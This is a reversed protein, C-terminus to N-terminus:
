KKYVQNRDDIVKGTLIQDLLMLANCAVNALHHVGSEDIDNKDSFTLYQNLHRQLADTLRTAEMPQSYNFKGYKNKGHSFGKCVELLALQPIASFSPKGQDHKTAGLPKIPNEDLERMRRVADYIDEEEVEGFSEREEVKPTNLVEIMEKLREKDKDTTEVKVSTDLIYYEEESEKDHAACPSTKPTEVLELDEARYLQNISSPWLVYIMIGERHMSSVYGITDAPNDTTNGPRYYCSSKAIKVRDGIKFKSM